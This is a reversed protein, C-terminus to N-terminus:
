QTRYTIEMPNLYALRAGASEMRISMCFSDFRNLPTQRLDGFPPAQFRLVPACPIMGM